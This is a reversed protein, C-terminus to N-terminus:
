YRPLEVVHIASMGIYGTKFQALTRALTKYGGISDDPLRPPMVAGHAAAGRREEYLTWQVQLTLALPFALLCELIFLWTPAYIGLFEDAVRTVIYVFAPPGILYYSYQALFVIGPPLAM